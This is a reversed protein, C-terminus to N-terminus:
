RREIEGFGAGVFSGPMKKHKLYSYMVLFSVDVPLVLLVLLYGYLDLYPKLSGSLYIALPIWGALVFRVLSLAVVPVPMALLLAFNKRMSEGLPKQEFLIVIDLFPFAIMFALLPLMLMAWGAFFVLYYILIYAYFTFFSPALWDRFSRFTLPTEHLKSWALSYILAQYFLDILANILLLLPLAILAINGSTKDFEFFFDSAEELAFQLPIYVLAVALLPWSYEIVFMASRSLLGLAAM